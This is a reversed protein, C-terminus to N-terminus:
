KKKRRLFYMKGSLFTAGFFLVIATLAVAAGLNHFHVHEDAHAFAPSASILLALTAYRM